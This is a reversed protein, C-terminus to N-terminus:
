ESFFRIRHRLFLPSQIRDENKFKIIKCKM